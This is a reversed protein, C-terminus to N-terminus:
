WRQSSTMMFIKNYIYYNPVVFITRNISENLSELLAVGTIIDKMAEMRTEHVAVWGCPSACVIRPGM